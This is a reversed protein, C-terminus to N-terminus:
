RSRCLRTVHRHFPFWANPDSLPPPPAEDCAGGSVSMRILGGQRKVGRAIEEVEGHIVDSAHSGLTQEIYAAQAQTFWSGGSGCTPCGGSRGFWTHASSKLEFLGGVAPAELQEVDDVLEGPLGHGHTHTPAAVGVRHHEDDLLQDGGPSRRSMQAHVNVPGSIIAQASFSLHRRAPVGGVDLPARRPAFGKTSDNLPRTLSSSSLALLEPGQDLGLDEGLCPPDLVVGVSGM